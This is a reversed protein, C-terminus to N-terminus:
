IKSLGDGDKLGYNVCMLFSMFVIIQIHAEAFFYYLETVGFLFIKYRSLVAVVEFM